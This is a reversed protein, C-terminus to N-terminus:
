AAGGSFRWAVVGDTTTREALGRAEALELHPLMAYKLDPVFGFPGLQSAAREIAVALKLPGAAERLLEETVREAADVFAESADLFAAIEAGRMVPYHCTLM